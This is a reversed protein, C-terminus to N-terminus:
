KDGPYQNGATVPDNGHLEPWDGRRGRFNCPISTLDPYSVGAKNGGFDSNFGVRKYAYYVIVRERM